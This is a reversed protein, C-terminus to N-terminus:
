DEDKERSGRLLYGAVGGAAAGLCAGIIASLGDFQWEPLPKDLPTVAEIVTNSVTRPGNDRKIAAGGALM